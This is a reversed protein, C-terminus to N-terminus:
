FNVTVGIAAFALRVKRRHFRLPRKRSAICKDLGWEGLRRRVTSDSLELDDAIQQMTIFRSQM